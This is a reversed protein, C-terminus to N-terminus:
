LRLAYRTLEHGGSGDSAGPLALVVVGEARMWLLSDLVRRVSRKGLARMTSPPGSDIPIPFCQFAIEDVACGGSLTTAKLWRYVIAADARAISEEQSM